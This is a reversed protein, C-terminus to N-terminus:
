WSKCAEEGRQLLYRKFCHFWLKETKVWNLHDFFFLFFCLMKDEGFHQKLWVIIHTLPKMCIRSSVKWGEGGRIKIDVEYQLHTELAFRPAEWDLCLEGKKLTGRLHSPPFTKVAFLFTGLINQLSLQLVRNNTLFMSHEITNQGSPSYVMFCLRGLETM